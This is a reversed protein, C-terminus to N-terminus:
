YLFGEKELAEKINKMQKHKNLCWQPSLLSDDNIGACVRQIMVDDPLMHFSKVLTDIYLEESITTLNGAKFENAMM